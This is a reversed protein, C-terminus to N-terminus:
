NISSQVKVFFQQYKGIPRSFIWFALVQQTHEYDKNRWQKILFLM